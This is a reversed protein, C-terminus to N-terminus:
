GSSSERAMVPWLSTSWAICCRCTTIKVRPSGCDPGSSFDGARNTHILTVLKYCRRWQCRLKQKSTLKLGDVPKNHENFLMLSSHEYAPNDPVFLYTADGIFLGERDLARHQRFISVVDRNFWDQLRDADTKRAMKRLYDQDCPTQRDYSNKDNFGGCELTVDGTEPHIARHGM